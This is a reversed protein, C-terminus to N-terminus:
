PGMEEGEALVQELLREVKDTSIKLGIKNITKRAWEEWDIFM